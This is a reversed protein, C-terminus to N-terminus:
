LFPSSSPYSSLAPFFIFLFYSRLLHLHLPSFLNPCLASLMLPRNLWALFSYILASLPSSFLPPRCPPHFCVPSIASQAPFPQLPLTLPSFDLRHLDLSRSRRSSFLQLNSPPIPSKRRSDWLSIFRNSFQLSLYGEEEVTVEHNEEGGKFGETPWLSDAAARDILSDATLVAPRWSVGVGPFSGRVKRIQVSWKLHAWYFQSGPNSQEEMGIQILDPKEPRKESRERDRKKKNENQNQQKIIMETNWNDPVTNM